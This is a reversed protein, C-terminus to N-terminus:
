VEKLELCSKIRQLAMWLQNKITKVSINLKESIEKQKVGKVKHMILIEKCRQPLQNICDSLAIRFEQTELENEEIFPEKLVLEDMTVNHYTKKRLHNLASNKAARYLYASTNEYTGINKRNNWIRIFLEQVIDEADTKNDVILNVYYCLKTYYSVFLENYSIYDNEAIQDLLYKGTDEQKGM